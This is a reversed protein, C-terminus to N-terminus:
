ELFSIALQDLKSIDRIGNKFRDKLLEMHVNDVMHVRDIQNVYVVDALKWTGKTNFIKTPL